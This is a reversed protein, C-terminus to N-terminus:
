ERSAALEDERLSFGSHGPNSIAQDKILSTHIGAGLRNIIVDYRQSGGIHENRDRNRWMESATYIGESQVVPALPANKLPHLDMKTAVDWIEGCVLLFASINYGSLFLITKWGFYRRKQNAISAIHLLAPGMREKRWWQGDWPRRGIEKGIVDDGVGNGRRQLYWADALRLQLPSVSDQQLTEILKEKLHAPVHDLLKHVPVERRFYTAAEKEPSWQGFIQPVGQKKM